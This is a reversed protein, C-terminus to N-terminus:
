RAPTLVVKGPLNAYMLTGFSPHDWHFGEPRIKDLVMKTYKMELGMRDHYHHYVKEYIPRLNGRFKASITPNRHNGFVDPIPNYPVEFGLNYKATYEFGVALRSNGLGYLDDGQKWAVECVDGLFGLGLQTHGQDRGSEQCQGQDNIYNLIAGNSKGNGAYEVATKYMDKNDTFIGICMTTVIM